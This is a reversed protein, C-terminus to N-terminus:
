IIQVTEQLEKKNDHNGTPISDESPYGLPMILVVEEDDKLFAEKVKKHDFWNVWCTGLGLEAAELMMHTAIISVDQQGSTIGEEIDSHWQEDKSFAFVLVIPANYACRTIERIKNVAEESKLVYIRQPQNNEATPALRGADLVKQLKEEEVVKDSYKRVSYRKRILELLEM